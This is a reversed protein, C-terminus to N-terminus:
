NDAQEHKCRDGTHKKSSDQKDRLRPTSHVCMCIHMRMCMCVCVYVYVCVHAGKRKVCM